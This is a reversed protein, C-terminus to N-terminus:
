YGGCGCGSYVAGCCGTNPNPVVYAPVASPQRLANVINTTQQAQSLQGEAQALRTRLTSMENQTLIDVIRQTNNNSAQMIDRASTNITNQLDCTNKAMNYNVGDINREIQCCCNQMNYGLNSINTNVGNFGQCLANQIGFQGDRLGSIGTQLGNLAFGENVDARTALGQLGPDTSVGRGGGGFGNGFGGWGFILLIVIWWAGDAGWMGSNGNNNNGQGVAYGEAFGNDM